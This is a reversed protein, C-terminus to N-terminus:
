STKTTIERLLEQFNTVKFLLKVTKEHFNRCSGPVAVFNILDDRYHLLM